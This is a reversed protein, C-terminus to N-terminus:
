GPLRDDSVATAASWSTSRSVVPAPNPVTPGAGTHAEGAPTDAGFGLLPARLRRAGTCSPASTTPWAALIDAFMRGTPTAYDIGGATLAAPRRHRGADRHQPDGRVAVPRMNASM